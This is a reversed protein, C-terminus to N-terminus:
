VSFIFWGTQFLASQADTTCGFYFWMTIFCIIDFISNSPGFVILMKSMEKANWKRPKAILEPDVNDWAIFVQTIDYVLNQVLLEIPLMPVFPLFIGAMLVSISNGYNNSATIKLYKTTNAFVKRGEIIGEQLVMLDKELLIVDASEKAIEVATDVSIGVDSEKLAISDNIGDGMFGVVKNASKLVRVIRAKQLPNLKAFVNAKLAEARLENDSM